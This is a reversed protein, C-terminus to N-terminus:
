LGLRYITSGSIVQKLDTIFEDYNAYGFEALVEQEAKELRKAFGKFALGYCETPASHMWLDKCIDDAEEAHARQVRVMRNACQSAKQM